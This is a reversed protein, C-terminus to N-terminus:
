VPITTPLTINLLNFPFYSRDDMCKNLKIIKILSNVLLVAEAIRDKISILEKIRSVMKLENKRSIMPTWGQLLMLM